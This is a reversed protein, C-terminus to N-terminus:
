EIVVDLKNNTEQTLEIVATGTKDNKEVLVKLIAVGSQGPQYINELDFLAVGNLNTESEYTADIAPSPTITPEGYVFVSANNVVNGSSDKVTIELTTREVKYCSTVLFILCIFPFLKKLPM